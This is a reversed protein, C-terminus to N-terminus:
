KGPKVQETHDIPVTMTIGHVAVRITGTFGVSIGRGGLLNGLTNFIGLEKLSIAMEVPVIFESKAPIPMDSEQNVTGVTKGDVRIEIDARKLKMAMRNPNYLLVDGSVKPGSLSLKLNTIDRFQIQERPACSVALALLLAIFLCRSGAATTRKALKRVM